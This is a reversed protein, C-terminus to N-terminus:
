SSNGGGTAERAVAAATTAATSATTAAANLAMGGQWEAEEQEAICMAQDVAANQASARERELRLNCPVGCARECARAVERRSPSLASRHASEVDSSPGSKKLPLPRAKM